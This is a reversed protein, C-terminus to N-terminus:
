GPFPPSQTEWDHGDYTYHTGNTNWANFYELPNMPNSSMHPEAFDLGLFFNDFGDDTTITIKEAPPPPQTFAEPPLVGVANDFRPDDQAILINSFFLVIASGLILAFNRIATVNSRFM